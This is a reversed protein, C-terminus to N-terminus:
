GGPEVGRAVVDETVPTAEAWSRRVEEAPQLTRVELGAAELRDAARPAAFASVSWRDDREQRESATVVQLGPERLLGLLSDRSGAIRILRLRARGDARGRLAVIPRAESAHYPAAGSLPAVPCM